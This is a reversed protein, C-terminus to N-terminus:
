MSYTTCHWHKSDSKRKGQWGMKQLEKAILLNFFGHGVLAVSKHKQAYETLLLSAKKARQIKANSVSECRRAYGSLWLCRFLVAWVNSTLKIGWFNIDPDPLETERFLPLSITKVNKNLIQASEISRKLDSTIVINAQSIKELTNAPYVNEEFVGHSDYQEVWKKFDKCTIQAQETYKSKGHRILSIEM